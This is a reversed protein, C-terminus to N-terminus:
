YATNTYIYIYTQRLHLMLDRPCNPWCNADCNPYSHKRSTSNTGSAKSTTTSFISPLLAATTTPIICSLNRNIPNRGCRGCALNQPSFLVPTLSFLPDPNDYSSNHANLYRSTLVCNEQTRSSEHDTPRSNAALHRCTGNDLTYAFLRTM